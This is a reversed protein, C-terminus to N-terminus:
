LRMGGFESDSPAIVTINGYYNNSASSNNVTDGGASAATEVMYREGSSMNVSYSDNPFGAPVTEWMGGSGVATDPTPTPSSGGGGSTTTNEIIDINVETGDLANLAAAYEDISKRGTILEANLKSISTATNVAKQDFVGLAVGAQELVRAEEDTIEGGSEKLKEKLDQYAALKIQEKTAGNLREAMGIVEAYTTVTSALVAKQEQLALVSQLTSSSMAQTASSLNETGIVASSIEQNMSRLQETQTGALAIRQAEYPSIGPDNLRAQNIREQVLATESLGTLAEAMVPLLENGITVKLGMVSNNWNDLALRYDESAKINQQTLILNDSIEGNLARLADGGQSLANAWKAGGRGLNDMIFQNKELPTNLKVYEDALNAIAEMNPELGNKTLYRTAATIDQASIEYDDLVQILRSAEEASAGSALALDRVQAAYEVTVNISDRITNIALTALMEFFRASAAGADKYAGGLENMAKTDGNAAQKSLNLFKSNASLMNSLDSVVNGLTGFQGAIARLVGSANDQAEIEIQVRATM